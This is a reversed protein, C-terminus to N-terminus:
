SLRGLEEEVARHGTINRHVSTYGVVQADDDRLADVSVEALFRSCGKTTLIIEAHWRSDAFSSPGGSARLSWPCRRGKM